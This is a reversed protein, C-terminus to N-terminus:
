KQKIRWNKCSLVNQYLEEFSNFIVERKGKVEYQRSVQLDLPICYGERTKEINIPMENIEILVSQGSNELLNKLRKKDSSM